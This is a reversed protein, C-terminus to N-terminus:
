IDELHGSKLDWLVQRNQMSPFRHGANALILILGWTVAARPIRHGLIDGGHELGALVGVIKFPREEKHINRM